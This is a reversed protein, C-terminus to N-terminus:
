VRKRWKRRRSVTIPSAPTTLERRLAGGSGGMKAKIGKKGGMSLPLMEGPTGM